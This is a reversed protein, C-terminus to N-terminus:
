FQVISAPASGIFPDNAPCRIGCRLFPCSSDCFGYYESLDGPSLDPLELFRLTSRRVAGGVRPEVRLMM